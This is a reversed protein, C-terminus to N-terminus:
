GPQSCSDPLSPEDPASAPDVGVGQGDGRNVPSSAALHGHMGALRIWHRSRSKELRPRCRTGNGSRDTARGATRAFRRAVFVLPGTPSGPRQSHRLPPVGCFHPSRHNLCLDPSRGPVQVATSVSLSPGALASLRPAEDTCLPYRGSPSASSSFRGTGRSTRDRSATCGSRGESPRGPRRRAIRRLLRPSSGPPRPRRARSSM